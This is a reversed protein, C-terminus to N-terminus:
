SVAVAAVRPARVVTRLAWLSVIAAVSAGAAVHVSWPTDRTILWAVAPLSALRAVELPVAWRRREVLGALTSLTLVVLGVPAVLVELAVSAQAVILGTTGLVVLAFTAVVYADLGKTTEVDYRSQTARSVAPIEARGGLAEPLWEPPAFPAYLRERWRTAAGVLRGIEMWPEVNAWLANFSRLPKVTGYVPEDKEECFTGFLRDWVILMGSYNRDIYEPNKAHHVRHHSPTNLLWELPRPLRGIGRTHVWFQYLTNLTVAALFMAPPFGLLAMPVHFPIQCIPELWAQRLATSLNYEESQHHVAHVAWLFRVRHSARHFAYFAVDVLLFAAVWGGVSGMSIEFLRFREYFVVYGAVVVAQLFVMVAQQGVGCALSGVADHLRYVPEARKRMLVAELAISLLFFPIAAAILYADM